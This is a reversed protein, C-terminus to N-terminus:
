RTCTFAGQYITTLSLTYSITNGHRKVSKISVDIPRDSYEGIVKGLHSYLEDIETDSLKDISTRITDLHRPEVWSLLMNKTSEM